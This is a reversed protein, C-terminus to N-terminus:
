EAASGGPEGLGDRVGATAGVEQEENQDDMKSEVVSLKLQKVM